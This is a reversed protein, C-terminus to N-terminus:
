FLILLLAIIFISVKLVAGVSCCLQDHNRFAREKSKFISKNRLHRFSYAIDEKYASNLLGRSFLSSPKSTTIEM